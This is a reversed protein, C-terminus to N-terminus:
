DNSLWHYEFGKNNTDFTDTKTCKAGTYEIRTIICNGEIDKTFVRLRQPDFEDVDDVQVVAFIGKESSHCLVGYEYDQDAFYYEEEEEYIEESDEMDSVMDVTRKVEGEWIVEDGGDKSVTIYASHYSPGTEHVINDLEYYPPLMLEESHEYECEEPMGLLQNSIDDECEDNLNWYVYQEKTISGMTFEGGYGSLTIYM